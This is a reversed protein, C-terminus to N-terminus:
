QLLYRQCDLIQIELIEADKWAGLDWYTFALYFMIYLTDPHEEGCALMESLGSGLCFSESCGELCAPELACFNVMIQLMNPHESCVANGFDLVLVLVLVLVM